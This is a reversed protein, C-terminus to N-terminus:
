KLSLGAILAKAPARTLMYAASIAQQWKPLDVEFFSLSHRYFGSVCKFIENRRRKQNYIELITQKRKSPIPESSIREIETNSFPVQVMGSELNEEFDILGGITNWTDLLEMFHSTAQLSRGNLVINMMDLCPHLTRWNYHRSERQTRPNFKQHQADDTISELIILTQGKIEKLNEKVSHWPLSTYLSEVEQLNDPLVGQILSAQRNLFALKDQEAEPGEDIQDDIWRLYAYTGVLIKGKDGYLRCFKELARATSYKEGQLTLEHTLTESM